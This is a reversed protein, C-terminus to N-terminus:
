GAVAETNDSVTDPEDHEPEPLRAAAHRLAVSIDGHNVEELVAKLAATQEEDFGKWEAEDKWPLGDDIAVQILTAASSIVEPDVYM